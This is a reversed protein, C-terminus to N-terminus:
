PIQDTADTVGDATKEAARCIRDRIPDKVSQQLPNVIDNIVGVFEDPLHKIGMIIKGDKVPHNEVEKADKFRYMKIYEQTIPEYFQPKAYVM